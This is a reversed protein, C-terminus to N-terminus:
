ETSPNGVLSTIQWGEVFITNNTMNRLEIWEDNSGGEVSNGGWNLENVVVNGFGITPTPTPSSTPTQTLSPTPTDTITPTSSPPVSTPFESAATFSNATSLATDTFFAQSKQISLLVLEVLLVSLLLMNKNSM